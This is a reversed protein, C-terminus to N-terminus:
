RVQNRKKGRFPVAPVMQKNRARPRAPRPRKRQLHKLLAPLAMTNLVNKRSLGGKRAIAVGWRVLDLERISHADPNISLLCGLEVARRHWRWDLELRNPNCNIEVAVHHESCAKLIAEM